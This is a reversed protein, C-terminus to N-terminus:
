KALAVTWASTVEALAAYFPEQTAAAVATCFPGIWVALHARTLEDAADDAGQELAYALAEWEVAIHDPLEHADARVHLGIERYIRAVDEAVDGMLRGQERRPVDDRWLSEYPACPVRGPGVLLREYEELLAEPESAHAAAEVAAVGDPEIESAQPWSAAWRGIEEATPRSWWAALLRAAPAPGAARDTASIM